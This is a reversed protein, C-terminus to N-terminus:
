LVIKLPKYNHFVKKVHDFNNTYGLLFGGGGAGCLKLSFKLNELGQMWIEKFDAPIMEIFYQYQLESLNQMSNALGDFDGILLNQICESVSGNYATHMMTRFASDQYNKQFLKVLDGTKRPVGTDLLFFGGERTHISNPLQTAVIGNGPLFDLPKGLYCSLPDIGSSTGHFYSELKALKEKLEQLKEGESWEVNELSFRRFIAAVLAGSSGAGYGHPINSDFYLGDELEKAFAGLDIGFSNSATARAALYDHYALLLRHLTAQHTNPAVDPFRLTGFFNKLPITLARGQCLIGYEGFLM